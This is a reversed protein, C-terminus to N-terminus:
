VELALEKISGILYLSGVAFLIDDDRKAAELGNALCVKVDDEAFVKCSKKSKKAYLKFLAAIYDASIARDSDLSTVYVERLDLAEMLYAIMPEYDKDGAVAFLLKTARHEYCRQVSDVFKIIADLNHAGDLVLHDGVKEMRGPWFFLEIAKQIIEQSLVQALLQDCCVIATAANDVQYTGVHSALKLHNYTYYENSVSFDITKDTIENIMYDVKAVNIATAELAKAYTRIVEDAEPNGTNYVVPIGSKIIGAKEKTIDTITNGLYRTHDLGISTIATLVPKLVNTADLRGGLGTEYVVYDLEASAFYLSAMAFLFEFYSLHQRGEKVAEECAAKVQEFCGLFDEEAINEYVLEDGRMYSIAIRETITTLHPSTFIGAKYGAVNLISRIFQATSGKGNTGAIHIARGRRHPNDLKELIYVLNPNGSKNRGDVNPGFMPIQEIYKVAAEFRDNM